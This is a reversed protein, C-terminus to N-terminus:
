KIYLELPNNRGFTPTKRHCSECLTSGNNVILRLKPFFAFPMRHDANLKGGRKGCNECTYNDRKFVQERWIKYEMSNRIITNIATVGGKWFHSKEGKFKESMLKRFSEPRKGYRPPPYWGNKKMSESIQKKTKESHKKGFYGKPHGGYLFRKKTADGIRKKANQSLQCFGRNWAPKGKPYAM